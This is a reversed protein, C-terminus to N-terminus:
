VRDLQEKEWSAKSGVTLGAGERRSTSPLFAAGGDRLEGCNFAQGRPPLFNSKDTTSAM